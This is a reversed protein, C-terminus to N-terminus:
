YLEPPKLSFGKGDRMLIHALTQGGGSRRNIRITKVLTMVIVILDFIM